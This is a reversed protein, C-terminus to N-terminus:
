LREARLQAGGVEHPGGTLARTIITTVHLRGSPAGTVGLMQSDSGMM